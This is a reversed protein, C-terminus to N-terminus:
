FPSFLSLISYSFLFFSVFPFSIFSFLFFYLNYFFFFFRSFLFLYEVHSCLFFFFLFFYLHFFLFYFVLCFVPVFPNKVHSFLNFFFSVFFRSFFLPNLTLVIPLSFSYSFFIDGHLRKALDGLDLRTTTKKKVPLNRWVIKFFIGLQSTNWPSHEKMM